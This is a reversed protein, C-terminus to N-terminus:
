KRAGQAASLLAAHESTFWDLFEGVTAATSLHLLADDELEVGLRDEVALILESMQLSDIALTELRTDGTITAAQGAGNALVCIWDANAGNTTWMKGGNIVYDAGIVRASTRIATIDSGGSIESVGIAAIRDGAISPRLFEERLEDSGWRALAPTAMDTQVGIALAIGTSELMGLSEAFVAQCTYDLGLGGFAEPKNVGLLGLEGLQKFVTRAPFEGEAEWRGAHPNIERAIFTTALDRLEQHLGTDAM